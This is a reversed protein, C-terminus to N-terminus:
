AVNESIVGYLTEADRTESTTLQRKEDRCLIWNMAIIFFLSWEEGGWEEKKIQNNAMSVADPIRRDIKPYSKCEIKM